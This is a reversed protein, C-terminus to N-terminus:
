DLVIKQTVIKGATYVKLLYVGKSLGTLDITNEESAMNGEAIRYVEQGNLNSIFIGTWNEPLNKINLIGNTPNPYINIDGWLKEGVTTGPNYDWTAYMLGRGHTAALVTNDEPRIQLMDVRVNPLIADPEWIVNFSQAHNTTWVGLETALMVQNTNQPHYIAWRIPMDPLNGSIDEWVTGGDYTQWVSQVGYNSFTVLLTDESGGVAISSLYAVPFDDTGIEEVSPTSQANTVKFLRGNQSGLYLTSTGAPAYPSLKVCSFYVNLGTNLNVMQDNPNYPIGTIRLIRNQYSGDYTVGNAYLINNESDYDAPNIFIGTGYDGMSTYGNWDLYVSYANYYYSTIMINPENEDFFCYAGDGGDIMDNIDLPEGMYLLTGNDQLGGVFYNQGAVPYIDCTYFQLTSYNNNKEQFVPNNSAANSTYFVGGDTGFLLENSSNPKYLQVHQDAHVYDDGGGWYMGAWDSLHSFSSGCNMTKWVDLGGVFLDNPNSPNVAGVFAHWSLSAWGPDGDPLNTPTWTEGSDDSKLIYRGEARNGGMNDIWGAGVLAFVRNADSPACAMIVRGPVPYQPDNLIIQEYDDFVTWTGATGEDSYLITAGGNGDLNKMTGVFIRGTPGIELDAPAYPVEEGAIIPLVQEWTEGGDTSRYLGDSPDSQHNIGHYFGSVVGAYVASTGDEDRVKIDSIYKFSETSPILDWTDGGDSSKWIGIGVGSSERYIHRATQYEGTGVYFTMPDNPDYAMSSISLSTWYDNVAYWQAGNDTIDDIYWLGGTVGGAWVKNGSPDNPDYMIARTRGGMNSGTEAWGLSSNSYKYLNEKKLQDTFRYANLLRENPVRKLQPDFTMFYNQLAAMDPQDAEKKDTEPLNIDKVAERYSKLLYQDWDTRPDPRDSFNFLLFGSIFIFVFIIGSLTFKKRM